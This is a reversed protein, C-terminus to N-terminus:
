DRRELVKKVEIQNQTLFSYSKIFEGGFKEKLAVITDQIHTM